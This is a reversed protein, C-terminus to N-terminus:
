KLFVMRKTQVFGETELKYFYVGSSLDEGRFETEYSGSIMKENVLTKVLSGLSNYVTLKVNSLQGNTNSPIDFRIKTSPNFPNPYNQHLSFKEPIVSSYNNINIVSQFNSNYIGHVYHALQRLRSISNLNNTGRAIIQACIVSQTDGPAMNLPGMTM